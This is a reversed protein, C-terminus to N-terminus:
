LQNLLFLRQEKREKKIDDFLVATKPALDRININMNLHPIDEEEQKRTTKGNM